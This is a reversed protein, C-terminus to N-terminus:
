ASNLQEIVENIENGADTTPVSASQERRPQHSSTTGPNNTSAKSRVEDHIGTLRQWTEYKGGYPCIM